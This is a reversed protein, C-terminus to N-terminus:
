RSHGVVFITAVLGIALEQAATIALPRFMYDPDSVTESLDGVAWWIVVPSLAIVIGLGVFGRARSM